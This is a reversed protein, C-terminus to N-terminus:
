YGTDREASDLVATLKRLAELYSRSASLLPMWHHTDFYRAADDHWHQAASDWAAGLLSLQHDCEQDPRTPM